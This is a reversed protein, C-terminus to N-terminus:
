TKRVTATHSIDDMIAIAIQTLQRELNLGRQPLKM